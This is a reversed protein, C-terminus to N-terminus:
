ELSAFWNSTSRLSRLALGYGLIKGVEIENSRYAAEAEAMIKEIKWWPPLVSAIEQVQSLSQELFLRHFKRQEEHWGSEVDRSKTPNARLFPPLFPEFARRAVLRGRGLREGFCLPDQNLLTAILSENLLPFHKAVGMAKALRAEEEQRVAVWDALVRERLSQQLPVYGDIEWPHSKHLYPALAQGGEETLQRILVDSRCFSRTRWRIRTLALPRPWLILQILGTRILTRPHGCWRAFDNLRGQRLLDSTVNGANHSLAQDGGFGSFLVRCGQAKLIEVAPLMAGVQAPAGLLAQAQLDREQWELPEPQWRHCHDEPLKHFQRFQTLLPGEGGGEHSWTHIQEPKINLGHILGGLVANSDIGSSHECGIPSTEKALSRELSELFGARVYAYLMEAPMRGAGGALPDYPSTEISGDPHILVHHSRPLRQIRQYPSVSASKDGSILCAVYAPNIDTVQPRGHLAYAEEWSQVVLPPRDPNHGPPRVAFLPRRHFADTSYLGPGLPQPDALQM